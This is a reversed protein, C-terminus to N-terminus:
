GPPAGPPSVAAATSPAAAPRWRGAYTLNPIPNNAVDFGEATFALTAGAAVSGPNPTIAIHHLTGPLTYNVATPASFSPANVLTQSIAGGGTSAFVYFKTAVPASGTFSATVVNSGPDYSASALSSTSLARAYACAQDMSVYIPHYPALNAAIGNMTASWESPTVSNDPLIYEHTFLTAMEM